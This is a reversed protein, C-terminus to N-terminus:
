CCEASVEFVMWENEKAAFPFSTVVADEATVNLEKFGTGTRFPVVTGTIDFMTVNSTDAIKGITVVDGNKDKGDVGGGRLSQFLWWTGATILPNAAYFKMKVAVELQYRVAGRLFISEATYKENHQWTVGSHGDM